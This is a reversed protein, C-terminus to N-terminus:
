SAHNASQARAWEVLDAEAYRVFKGFKYFNPGRGERRQFRLANVSIRLFEAAEPETLWQTEITPKTPM